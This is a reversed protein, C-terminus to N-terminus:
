ETAWRYRVGLETFDSGDLGIKDPGLLMMVFSGRLEVRRSLAIRVVPGARLTIADDRKPVDLVDAVLGVSHQSYAGLRILYGGRGRYILPPAVVVKMTEEFAYEGNPVNTVYSVTGRLVVAGPGLPITSDLEAEYTLIKQQAGESTSIDLRDYNPKQPLFSRNFSVVYRPGVRLDVYPLEARIGAYVGAVDSSVIPNADVGIWKTFPKGYGLTVRPRLYVFGIDITTSVFPRSPLAAWSRTMRPDMLRDELPTPFLSLPPRPDVRPFDSPATPTSLTTTTSTTTRSGTTPSTSTSTSTPPAPPPGEEPVWGSTSQTVNALATASVTTTALTVCFILRARM